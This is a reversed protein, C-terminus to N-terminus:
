LSNKLRLNFAWIRASVTEEGARMEGLAGNNVFSGYCRGSEVCACLGARYDPRPKSATRFSAEKYM